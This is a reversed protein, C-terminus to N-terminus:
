RNSAASSGSIAEHRWRAEPGRPDHQAADSCNTTCHTPSGNQSQTCYLNRAGTVPKEYMRVESITMRRLEGDPLKVTLQHIKDM